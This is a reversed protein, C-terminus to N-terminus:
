SLTAQMPIPINTTEDPNENQTDNVTQTTLVARFPPVCFPRSVVIHSMLYVPTASNELALPQRLWWEGPQLVPTTMLNLLKFTDSHLLM